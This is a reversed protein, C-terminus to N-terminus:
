SSKTVNIDYKSCKWKKKKIRYCISVNLIKKTIKSNDLSHAIYSHSVVYEEGSIHFPQYLVLKKAISSSKEAVNIMVM